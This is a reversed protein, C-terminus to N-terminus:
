LGLPLALLLSAALMSAALAARLVRRWGEFVRRLGARPEV